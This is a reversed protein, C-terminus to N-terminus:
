MKKDACLLTNKFQGIGSKVCDRVCKDNATAGKSAHNAGCMTDTIVGTYTKPASQAFPLGFLILSLTLINM